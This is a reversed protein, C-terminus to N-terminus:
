LSLFVFIYKIIEFNSLIKKSANHGDMNENCCGRWPELDIDEITSCPVYDRPYMANLFVNQPIRDIRDGNECLVKALSTKQLSNM